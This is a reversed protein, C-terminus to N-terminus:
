IKWEWSNWYDTIVPSPKFNKLDSNYGIVNDDWYIMIEPVEDLLIKWAGAYDDRRRTHDYNREADSLLADVKPNCYFLTNAGRHPMFACGLEGFDDPDVGETDVIWAMDYRGGYLPGDPAFLLASEYNKTTLEVGVSQLDRAILQEADENLLSSSATSISLSLRQGSKVRIGDSGIRWGDADLMRSAAAPDYPVPALRNAAWSFPPVDSAARVGLGGYVTRIIKDIDIARAIARRVNVDRLIPSKCNFDLHRYSATLTTKVDIGPITKLQPVLSKTVGDVMDVEHSQLVQFLTNTNPIFKIDIGDLGPRGRWYRPNAAFILDSGHIWQKLVFPGDGIPASDYPNDNLTPYKELLHKPLPPFTGESFFYVAAAIPKRLVFTVQYPGDKVMKKIQDYDATNTVPSKGNVISQWTFIVDDATVPVGDSWLVGPRLKFTIRTGDASILGNKSTPFVTALSPVPNEHDDFRFFPEFLLATVDDASAQNSFVRLLSNPEGAETLRLTGHVTWPNAAGAQSSLSTETKTCSAALVACTAVAAAIVGFSGFRM